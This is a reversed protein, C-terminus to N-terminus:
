LEIKKIYKGKHKVATGDPSYSQLYPLRLTTLSVILALRLQNAWKGGFAPRASSLLDDAPERRTLHIGTQGGLTRCLPHTQSRDRDRSPSHSSLPIVELIAAAGLLPPREPCASHSPFGSRLYRATPLM